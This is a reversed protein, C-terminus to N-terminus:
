AASYSIGGALPLKQYYVDVDHSVGLGLVQPQKPTTFPIITIFISSMKKNSPIVVLWFTLNVKVHRHRVSRWFFAQLLTVGGFVVPVQFHQPKWIRFRRKWPDMKLEM